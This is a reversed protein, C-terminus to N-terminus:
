NYESREFGFNDPENALLMAIYEPDDLLDQQKTDKIELKPINIKRQHRKNKRKQRRSLAM